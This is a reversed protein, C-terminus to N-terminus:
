SLLHKPPYAQEMSSCTVRCEGGRPPPAALQTESSTDFEALLNRAKLAEALTNDQPAHSRPSYYFPDWLEHLDRMSIGLHM